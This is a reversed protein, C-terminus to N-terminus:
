ANEGHLRKETKQRGILPLLAKLEPGSEEGTLALRIPMFLHKGARGTRTKIQNIWLDWTSINWEGEPLLASAIKLFEENEPSINSTVNKNCINWWNVAEDVKNLNGRISLWFEEDINVELAELSPKIESYSMKNILKHNLQLLENFDYNVASLSFKNLDFEELLQTIDKIAEISDSSGMKALLSKIAMPEIFQERLSSIEFGGIRKSIKDEKSKLLSIHGLIPPTKGLAKTIQIGIATNTIHDEGRLVHTINFDIDDIASCLIYTMSGDERIVIPDGLNKSQFQIHGRILDDWEIIGDELLFRYHPKHGQEILTDYQEKTIKLGERDYIPPLGRSLLLKRKMDLDNQTEFCPYLRGSAILAKKVEEYRALRESQKASEDWKLGLWQLDDKIAIEYESKSRLLDTDDMRLMFVGNNSRAFLWNILATRVNGIHLLGTPSPAFRTKVLM